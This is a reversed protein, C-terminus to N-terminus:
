EQKASPFYARGARTLWEKTEVVRVAAMILSEAHWPFREPEACDFEDSLSEEATVSVCNMQELSMLSEMARHYRPTSLESSLLWSGESSITADSSSVMIWSVQGNRPFLRISVARSYQIEAILERLSLDSAVYELNDAGEPLLIERRYDGGNVLRIVGAHAAEPDRTWAELLIQRM